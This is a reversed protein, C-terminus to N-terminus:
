ATAPVVVISHDRKAKRMRRLHIRRMGLAIILEKTLQARRMLCTEELVDEFIDAHDLAVRKPDENPFRKGLAELVTARVDKKVTRLQQRVTLINAAYPRSKLTKAM